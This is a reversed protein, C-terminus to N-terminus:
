AWKKQSISRRTESSQYLINNDAFQCLSNHWLFSDMRIIGQFFATKYKHNMIKYFWEHAPFSLQCRDRASCIQNYTGAALVCKNMWHEYSAGESVPINSM